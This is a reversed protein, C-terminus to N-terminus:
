QLVIKKYTLGNDSKLELIYIGKEFNELNIQEIYEGIFSDKKESYIVAGIM